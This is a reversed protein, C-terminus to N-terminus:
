RAMLGWALLVIPAATALALVARRAVRQAPAMDRVPWTLAPQESTETTGYAQVAHVRDAQREMAININMDNSYM